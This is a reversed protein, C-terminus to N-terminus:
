ILGQASLIGRDGLDFIKCLSIYSFFMSSDEQRFGDPMSGLYKTHLMM